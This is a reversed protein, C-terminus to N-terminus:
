RELGIFIRDSKQSLEVNLYLGAKKSFYRAGNYSWDGLADLTTYSLYKEMLATREEEANEIAVNGNLQAYFSIVTGSADDITYGLDFVEIKETELKNVCSYTTCGSIEYADIFSTSLVSGLIMGSLEEPFDIKIFFEALAKRIEDPGAQGEIAEGGNELYSTVDNILEIESPQVEIEPLGSMSFSRNLRAGDLIKFYVLPCLVLAIATMTACIIVLAKKM